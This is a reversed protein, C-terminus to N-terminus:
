LEFLGSADLRRERSNSSERLRWQQAFNNSFTESYEIDDVCKSGKQDLMIWSCQMEATVFVQKGHADNYKYYLSYILSLLALHVIMEDNPHYPSGLASLRDRIQKTKNCIEDTTKISQSQPVGSILYKDADFGVGMIVFSPCSCRSDVQNLTDLMAGVSVEVMASLKMDMECDSYSQLAVEGLALVGKSVNFYKEHAGTTADSKLNSSEM